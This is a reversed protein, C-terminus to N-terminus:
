LFRSNFEKQPQQPPVLWDAATRPASMRGGASCADKMQIGRNISRFEYVHCFAPLYLRLNCQAIALPIQVAKPLALSLGQSDSPQHSPAGWIRSGQQNPQLWSPVIPDLAKEQRSSPGMNSFLSSSALRADQDLLDQARSQLQEHSSRRGPYATSFGPEGQANQGGHLGEPQNPSATRPNGLQTQWAQEARAEGPDPMGLLKGLTSGPPQQPAAPPQWAGTSGATVPGAQSHAGWSSAPPPTERRSLGSNWPQTWAASSMANSLGTFPGWDPKHAETLPGDRGFDATAGRASVGATDQQQPAGQPKASPNQSDRWGKTPGPAANLLGSLSAHGLSGAQQLGNPTEPHLAGALDTGLRTSVERTPGGGASGQRFAPQQADHGGFGSAPRLGLEHGSSSLRRQLEAMADRKTPQLLPNPSAAPLPQQVAQDGQGPLRDSESPQHAMQKQMQLLTDLSAEKGNAALLQQLALLEASAHSSGMDAGQQRGQLGYPAPSRFSTQLPISMGTLNLGGGASDLASGPLVPQQNQISSGHMQQMLGLPQTRAAMGSHLGQSSYATNLLGSQLYSQLPDAASPPLRNQMGEHAAQFGPLGSSIGLLHDLQSDQGSYHSLGGQYQSGSFGALGQQVGASRPPWGGLTSLTGQLQSHLGANNGSPYQPQGRGQALQAKLSAPLASPIQQSPLPVPYQKHRLVPQQWSQDRLQNLLAQLQIDTASAAPQQYLSGPQPSPAKPPRALRSAQMANLAHPLAATTDLQQQVANELSPYPHPLSYGQSSSLLEQIPSSHTPAQVPIHVGTGSSWNTQPLPFQKPAGGVKDASLVAQGRSETRDALGGACSM